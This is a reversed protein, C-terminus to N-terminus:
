IHIYRCLFLSRLCRGWLYWPTLADFSGMQTNCSGILADTHRLKRDAHWHTVVVEQWPTLTDYNGILTGTHWVLKRNTQWPKCGGEEGTVGSICPYTHTHTITDTHSHLGLHALIHTHIHLWTLTHTYCWTHLSIHTYSYDHSHTLTVGPTCPLHRPIHSRALTHACCWPHLTHVCSHTPTHTYQRPACPTCTHIHVHWHTSSIGPICLTHTYM